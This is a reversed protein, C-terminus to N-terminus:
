EMEEYTTSLTGIREKGYKSNYILISEDKEYLQDCKNCLLDENKWGRHFDAIMEYVESEFVEEINQTKLDGLLLEGNYDFCCMNVTGDVQIQLPGNFPRGCTAKRREGSRYDKWDVWNHVKWIELLDVKNEFMGRLLKVEEKDEEVMDVTVIVDINNPIFYLLDIMTVANYYSGVSARTIERYKDIDGAHVSIRISDVKSNILQMVRDQNVMSGNTLINVVYGKDKTFLIKEILSRDMFGEGMGSLTVVEIQPPLKNVIQEFLKMSMTEHERKFSDTNLPCFSCSYNCLTTTEIRAEKTSTM